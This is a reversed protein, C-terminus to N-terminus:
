DLIKFVRKGLVSCILSVALEGTKNAHDLIPNLEVFEMSKLMTRSSLMEAAL